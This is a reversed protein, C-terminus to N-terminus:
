KALILARQLPLAVHQMWYDLIGNVARVFEEFRVPKVHYANAGAAYCDACESARTSGSLMVVPIERFAPLARLQGVLEQGSGGPLSQDLLVLSFPQGAAKRTELLEFARVIDTARVLRLPLRRREVVSEITDYDEDSDEVVLIFCENPAKM